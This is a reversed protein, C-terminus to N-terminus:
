GDSAVNRAADISIVSGRTPRPGLLSRGRLSEDRARRDKSIGLYRETTSVNSHHLLASTMRLASDWTGEACLTDFYHRAVARRITHVGEHQTPLGLYALATQAVRHVKKVPRDPVFSPEVQYQQRWGEPTTRWRFHPGTKAPFLYHEATVEVPRDAEACRTRYVALWKRLEDELDSTLPFDDETRSKTITTHLTGADFDVDGVRLSCIESARLGTNMATALIARDRPCDASDLMSWLMDASPQLRAKTPVRQPVVQQLLDARTMGRRALYAFFEKLRTRIYNHTSAAIPKRVQGDRTRHEAMLGNTGYFWREVHDPTLHRVQLDGVDAVFRTLVHRENKFTAEALRNRRFNLYDDLAESLRPHPSGLTDM